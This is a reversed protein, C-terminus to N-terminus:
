PLPEQPGCELVELSLQRLPGGTGNPAETVGIRAPDANRDARKADYAADEREQRNEPDPHEREAKEQDGIVHGNQALRDGPKGDPAHPLPHRKTEPKPLFPGAFLM